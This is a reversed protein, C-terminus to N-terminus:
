RGSSAVYVLLCTFSILLGAAFNGVAKERKIAYAKEKYTNVYRPNEAIPKPPINLNHNKPPTANVILTTIL